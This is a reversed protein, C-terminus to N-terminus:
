AARQRSMGPGFARRCHHVCYPEDRYGQAGCFFFVADKPDGVPFRCERPGIEPHPSHPPGLMSRRQEVPIELDEPAPAGDVGDAKFTPAEDPEGSSYRAPLNSRFKSTRQPRPGAPSRPLRPPAPTSLGVRRCKGLVASRSCGLEHGIVTASEDDARMKRLVAIREDTWFADLNTPSRRQAKTPVQHAAIVAARVEEPTGVLGLEQGCEVASLGANWLKKLLPIKDQPVIV